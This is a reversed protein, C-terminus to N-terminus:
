PTDEATTTGPSGGDGLLGALRAFEARAEPSDDVRGISWTLKPSAYLDRIEALVQEREAAAAHWALHKVRPDSAPTTTETGARVGGAAAPPPNEDDFGHVLRVQGRLFLAALAATWDHSGLVEIGVPRGHFDVDFNVNPGACVTRDVPQQTLTVYAADATEDREWALRCSAAPPPAPQGPHETMTAGERSPRRTHGDPNLAKDLAEAFPAPQRSAATM